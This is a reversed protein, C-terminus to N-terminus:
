NGAIVRGLFNIVSPFSCTFLYFVLVYLMIYIHFIWIDKWMKNLLRKESRGCAGM